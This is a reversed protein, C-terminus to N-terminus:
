SFSPSLIGATQKTLDDERAVGNSEFDIPREVFYAQFDLKLPIDPNALMLNAIQQLSHPATWM